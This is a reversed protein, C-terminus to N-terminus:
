FLEAEGLQVLEAAADTAAALFGVANENGARFVFFGFFAEADEFFRVITEFDGFGVHLKTAGAFKEALLLAAHGVEFKSVEQAIEFENSFRASDGDINQFRFFRSSLPLEGRLSM